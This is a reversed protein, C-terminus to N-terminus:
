EQILCTMGAMEPSDQSSLDDIVHTMVIYSGTNLPTWEVYNNASYGSGVTDWGSQLAAPIAYGSRVYSIFYPSPTTSGFTDTTLTIPTSRTTGQTVTSTLRVVTVDSSIGVPLTLGGMQPAHNATDDTVWVMLVYHGESTPNWTYTNDTSYDKLPTWTSTAYAATGYGSRAWFRYYVTSSSDTTVRIKRPSSVEAPANCTVEIMTINIPALPTLSFDETIVDPSFVSVSPNAVFQYGQRYGSVGYLGFPLSTIIYKGDICPYEGLPDFYVSAGSIAGSTDADTVM